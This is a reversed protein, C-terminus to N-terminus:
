AAGAAGAAGAAAEAALSARIGADLDAYRLEVGLEELMRRNDVRRSESLFSRATPSLGQLADDRSVLPPEPLGALAAVRLLFQTASDENGDTVNYIRRDAVAAFGAEAPM